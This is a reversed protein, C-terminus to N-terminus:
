NRYLNYWIKKLNCSSFHVFFLIIKASKLNLITCSMLKVLPARASIGRSPMENKMQNGHAQDPLEHIQSPM